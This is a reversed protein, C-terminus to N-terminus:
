CSEVAYVSSIEVQGYARTGEDEMRCCVNVLASARRKTLAPHGRVLHVSGDQQPVSLLAEITVQLDSVTGPDKQM